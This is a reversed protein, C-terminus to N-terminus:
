EIYKVYISDYFLHGKKAQVRENLMIYEPNIWTTAYTMIENRQFPLYYKM